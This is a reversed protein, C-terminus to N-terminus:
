NLKFEEFHIDKKPIGLKMFQEKLGSMMRPPGCLFISKKLLGGSAKDIIGANIFGSEDSYFPMVRLVGNKYADSNTVESLYVSEGENKVCYYLDVKYPENELSKAMSLFPTIGIGGAIWVQDKKDTKKYSFKGYPGEIKAMEGAKLNSLSATYDGLAKVSIKLVGEVPSSSVSFPHLEPSINEGKFSVFIFQGPIFSMKEAGKPKMSVETISDGVSRIESIVYDYKKVLKKGFLTRYFYAVLGFFALSLVYIKLATNESVDSAIFFVHIGGLFFAFGLFKHTFKWIQYPLKVYYTIYLFAIMLLLSFIGFNLPWNNSPLLFLAVDRLASTQAIQLASFLPHLLLLIFSIGAFTHHALYARDLGGFLDDFFKIRASLMLVLAFMVMGVLGALQALSRFIQSADEVRIDFPKMFFWFIVPVLSLGIILFWGFNKKLYSM